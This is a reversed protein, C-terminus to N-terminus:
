RVVIIRRVCGDKAFIRLLVARLCNIETRTLPDRRIKGRVADNRIHQARQLIGPISCAICNGGADADCRRRTQRRHHFSAARLGSAAARKQPDDLGQFVGHRHVHGRRSAFAAGAGEAASGRHRPRLMKTRSSGFRWSLDSIRNWLTIKVHSFRKTLSFARLFGAGASCRLPRAQM